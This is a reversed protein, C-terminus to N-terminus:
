TAAGARTDVNDMQITNKGTRSSVPAALYRNVGSAIATAKAM